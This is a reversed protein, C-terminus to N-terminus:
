SIKKLLNIYNSNEKNFDLPSKFYDVLCLIFSNLYDYSFLVALGISFDESLMKAAAVKYVNSFLVNNNTSMFIEDMIKSASSEDYSMEDETEADLPENINQKLLDLKENYSQPNM